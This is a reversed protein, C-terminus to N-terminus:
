TSPCSRRRRGRRRASLRLHLAGGAAAVDPDVRHPRGDEPRLHTGRDYILNFEVYRGRRFEQFRESRGHVARGQAAARDAPLTSSPTAADRVFAFLQTSTARGPLRLLHRRRRAAGPPAAPLLVRRVMEQLARLRRAPRAADCVAKWTRHFHIVDERFPYYPTLDAGGGFWWRTARAHPLPLQRPRDARDPQAPAAGALHRHRHLGPGRRADAQRVRESM